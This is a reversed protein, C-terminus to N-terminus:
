GDFLVYYPRLFAYDYRNWATDASLSAWNFSAATPAELEAAGYPGDVINAYEDQTPGLVTVTVAKMAVGSTWIAQQERLCITKTMEQAVSVRDDTMPVAGGVRLTVKVSADQANYITQASLVQDGAAQCARRALTDQTNPQGTPSTASASSCGSIVHKSAAHSTARSTTTACASFMALAALAVTATIAARVFRHNIGHIGSM